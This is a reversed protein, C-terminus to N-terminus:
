RRGAARIAASAYRCLAVVAAGAAAGVTNWLVDNPDPVRGPIFAQAYEVGASLALGALMALPWLRRSLLLALTAGLPVFMLTNLTREADGFSVSALVPSLLTDLVHMFRARAPAVITRPALTLVAVTGVAFVAALSRISRSSTRSTM